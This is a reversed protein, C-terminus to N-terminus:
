DILEWSGDPRRCATGYAREVRGGVTVRKQYGRCYRGERAPPAEPGLVFVAGREQRVRGRPVFREPPLAALGPRGDCKYEEKFGGGDQKFEYKCDGARWEYEGPKWEQEFGGLRHRGDGHGSEGKWPDGLTPGPLALGLTAAALAAGAMRIRSSPM